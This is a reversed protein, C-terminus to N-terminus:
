RCGKRLSSLWLLLGLLIVVGALRTTILMSVSLKGRPFDEFRGTVELGAELVCDLLFGTHRCSWSRRSAQEECDLHGYLLAVFV